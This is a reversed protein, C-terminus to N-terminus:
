TRTYKRGDSRVCWKQLECTRWTSSHTETLNVMMLDRENCRLSKHLSHLLFKIITLNVPVHLEVHRVHSNSFHYIFLSLLFYVLVLVRWFCRSVAIHFQLEASITLKTLPLIGGCSYLIFCTLALCKGITLTDPKHESPLGLRPRLM